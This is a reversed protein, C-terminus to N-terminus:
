EQECMDAIFNQMRHLIADQGQETVAREAPRRSRSESPLRDHQRDYRCRDVAERIFHMLGEDGEALGTPFIPQGIRNPSDDSRHTPAGDPRFSAGGGEQKDTKDM